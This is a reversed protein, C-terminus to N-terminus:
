PHDALKVTPLRFPNDPNPAYEDAPLWEAMAPEESLEILKDRDTIIPKQYKMAKAMELDSLGAIATNVRHSFANEIWTDVEVCVHEMARLESDNLTVTYSPM